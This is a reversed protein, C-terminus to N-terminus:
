SDNSSATHILIVASIAFTASIAGKSPGSTLTHQVRYGMFVRVRGDDMRVPFGTILSRKPVALRDAIGPDLDVAEVVARLQQAAMRYVPSAEYLNAGPPIPDASM